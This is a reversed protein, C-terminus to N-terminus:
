RLGDFEYFFFLLEIVNPWEKQFRVLFMEKLYYSEGYAKVKPLKGAFKLWKANKFKNQLGSSAIYPGKRKVSIILEQSM